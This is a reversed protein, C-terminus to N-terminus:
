FFFTQWLMHSYYIWAWTKVISELLSILIIGLIALLLDYLRQGTRVWLYIGCRPIFYLILNLYHAESQVLANRIKAYLTITFYWNKTKFFCLHKNLRNKRRFRHVKFFNALIKIKRGSKLISETWNHGNM